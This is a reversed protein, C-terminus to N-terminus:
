IINSSMISGGAIYVMKVEMSCPKTDAALTVYQSHELMRIMVTCTIYTATIVIKIYNLGVYKHSFDNENYTDVPFFYWVM